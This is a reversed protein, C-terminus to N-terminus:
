ELHRVILLNISNGVDQAFAEALRDRYDALITDKAQKLAPTGETGLKGIKNRIAFALQLPTPLRGNDNPRPIVPKVEIWKLLASIPPFHPKTGREIYEWYSRLELNVKFTQGDQVIHFEVSNLLDGSAIKNSRILNDQYENRLAEGLEDLVRLVNTFSILTDEAM